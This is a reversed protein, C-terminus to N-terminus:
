FNQVSIQSFVNVYHETHEQLEQEIMVCMPM